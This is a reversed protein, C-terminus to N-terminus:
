GRLVWSFSSRNKRCRGGHKLRGGRCTAAFVCGLV